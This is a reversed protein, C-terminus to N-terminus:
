PKIAAIRLVGMVTILIIGPGIAVGALPLRISIRLVFCNLIRSFHPDM